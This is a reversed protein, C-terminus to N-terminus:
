SNLRPWRIIVDDHRAFPVHLQTGTFHLPENIKLEGYRKKYKQRDTPTIHILNCKLNMCIQSYAILIRNARM